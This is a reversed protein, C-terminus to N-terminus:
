FLAVVPQLFTGIISEQVLRYGNMVPILLRQLVMTLFAPAKTGRFDRRFVDLDNSSDGVSTTAPVRFGWGDSEASQLGGCLAMVVPRVRLGLLLGVLSRAQKKWRRKERHRELRYRESTRDM